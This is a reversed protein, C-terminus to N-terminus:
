ITRGYGLDADETQPQRREQDCGAVSSKYKRVFSQEAVTGARCVHVTATNMMMEGSCRVCTVQTELAKTTRWFKWLMSDENINKENIRVAWDTIITLFVPSM